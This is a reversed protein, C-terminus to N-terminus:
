VNTIAQLLREASTEWNYKERVAQAINLLEDHSPPYVLREGLKQRFTTEDAPDFLGEGFFDFDKMATAFSCLVPTQLAAAELPPIGFGEAKSPYVFLRAANFFHVLDAPPVKELWHIKGKVAAPLKNFAADLMASPISKQGILVLSLGREHLRLENFASILLEHNKRPEVRAVYLVFDNVGYKASIYDKSEDKGHDQFFEDDVANPTMVIMKKDIGFHREIAHASYSSVTTLIDAQRAARRFLLEKQQRWTSPFEYPFDKFLLDHITVIYRCRKIPPAVYQFHALDIGHKKIISPFEFLLRQFRNRSTLPVFRFRESDFHEKLGEIDQAALFIELGQNHV